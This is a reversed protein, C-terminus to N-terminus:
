KVRGANWLGIWSVLVQSPIGAPQRIWDNLEETAVGLHEALAVIASSDTRPLAQM